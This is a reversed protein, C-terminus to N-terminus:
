GRPVRLKNWTYAGPWGDADAGSFGLKRQWKAYSARDAETWQPGPGDHYAGVGEAVLRKGMRTVLGSNPRAKFYTVGPFPEYAVRVPAPTPVAHSPRGYGAISAAYRVRRACVNATNGEITYVAGGAGTGTVLGVHDIAALNNTGSWDFFVIDGRRIGAVDSHWQGRDRFWQAHAVTYAFKGVVSDNGSHAAWYSVSIDCWPWNQDHAASSWWRQLANPEGTGLWKEAEAVMANAGSM